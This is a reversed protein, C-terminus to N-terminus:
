SAALAAAKRKRRWGILGAAALGSAFLPLAAPLPTTGVDATLTGTLSGSFGLGSVVADYYSNPVNPVLALSTANAWPDANALTLELFNLAPLPATFSIVWNSGGTPASVVDSSPLNAFTFSYLPYASVVSINEGTINGSADVTVTGSVTLNQFGVGPISVVGGGSASIDYTLANAGSQVTVMAVIAAALKLTKIGM